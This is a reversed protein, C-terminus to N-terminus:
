TTRLSARTLGLRSLGVLRAPREGVVGVSRRQRCSDPFVFDGFLVFQGLKNTERSNQARRSAGMITNPIHKTVAVFARDNTEDADFDVDGRMGFRWDVAAGSAAEEDFFCLRSWDIVHM